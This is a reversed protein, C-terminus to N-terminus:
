NNKESNEIETKEKNKEIIEVVKSAATFGIGILGLIMVVTM